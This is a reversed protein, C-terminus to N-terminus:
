FKANLDLQLVDNSYTPGSIIDTSLWRGTFWVNKMLGYNTGIVWGKANTGGLHFDSDTFADLVADRQVYKFLAFVNWEGFNDVKPWGFDMRIQWANAEDDVVGNEANNVVNLVEVSKQNFGVNKAFDASAIVHYPAFGAYDYSINANIINYDSALGFLEAAKVQANTEQCIEALSNGVQQFQPISFNNDPQNTICRRDGTNPKARINMYDYYALGVRLADQNAFGWNLGLQGGVLWKGTSSLETEQLPFAGATVYVERSEDHKGTMNKSSGLSHRATAAFGEFSLDTDWVLESGGTFEGGGVYWPNAIRGGVLTLWKYGEDNVADYKLYARDVNFDYQSGTNGMSQNTSVPDPQNGTALRVGAKFNDTIKADIALRVRERFRHRDKDTNIYRDQVPTRSFGGNANIAQFNFYSKDSIGPPINDGAMFDNQSRLRLDGSLKFRNVWEPLAEPIGWKENKAKQMVDGVVEERLETRVQQRIEDKVFQPVYTVRVDDPEAPKSLDKAVQQEQKVEAEADAKANVVMKDADKQTIVGKKVLEQILSLTTNRLLLLDEKEGAQAVSVIGFIALPILQKYKYNQM